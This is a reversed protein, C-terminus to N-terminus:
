SETEGKSHAIEARTERACMGCLGVTPDHMRHYGRSYTSALVRGCRACVDVTM